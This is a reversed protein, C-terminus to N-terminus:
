KLTVAGPTPGYQAADQRLRWYVSYRQHHVDFLPRLVIGSAPGAGKFTFASPDGPVPALWAAPNGSANVIDPVPAAASKLYADKDGVDRVPMDAKGLEGALLVPGHFISVMSAGDRAQELRLGAPLALDIADGAKWQRRLSVYSASTADVRQRKGNISV